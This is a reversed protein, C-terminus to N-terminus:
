PSPSSAEGSNEVVHQLPLRGPLNPLAIRLDDINRCEPPFTLGCALDIARGQASTTAFLPLHPAEVRAGVRRGIQLTESVEIESSRETALPLANGYREHLKKLAQVRHLLVIPGMGDVVNKEIRAGTKMVEATDGESVERVNVHEHCAGVTLPFVAKTTLQVEERRACCVCLRGCEDELCETWLFRLLTAGRVRSKSQASVGGKLSLVPIRLVIHRLEVVWDRGM